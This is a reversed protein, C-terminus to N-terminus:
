LPVVYIIEGKRLAEMVKKGNATSKRLNIYGERSVTVDFLRHTDAFVSVKSHALHEGVHLRITKKKMEVEVEIREVSARESGLPEVDLSIGLLEEIDAIRKGRKGIVSSIAPSPVYIKARNDSVVRAKVRLGPFLKRMEEEIGRAALKYIGKEEEKVPVVVIQEGFSYVEYLLKEEEIDRVEIVPRALDEEHMGSPVKVTYRLTLVQAISGKEIHIITDVIQPIVGLEVRGIFRQLADIARTAHVVGVMGVGALRLDTFVKFDSTTRMEDFITYDPRVLLLIDGTKEMSGELATYQTIEDKLILDRPKEMTKVIKNLSAYYEAIAQVFTSKGAGPSGSVLIGEAREEIRRRLKESINYDELALKVIPRVATIEMADSFPARTIAIRYERLQVVTAGKMDMEIFSREDRRAREVIDYAIEEVEEPSISERIRVLKFEGPKGRKAFAGVDAKIHVSMTESTFFDEIRMKVIKKQELYIVPIGKIEAIHRQVSDGTVLTAGSQSACERIINDIEGERARRIQWEEPRSGCFVLNIGRQECVERIKKLDSLASFGISMGRNAQHEVESIIAEPIIIEEVEESQLFELFRGDVIVSTDPVLKM